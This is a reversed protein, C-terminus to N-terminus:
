FAKHVCKTLVVSSPKQMSILLKSGRIAKPTRIKVLRLRVFDSNCPQPKHTLGSRICLVRTEIVLSAHSVSFLM